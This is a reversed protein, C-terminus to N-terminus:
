DLMHGQKLLRILRQTYNRKFNAFSGLINELTVVGEETVENKEVFSSLEDIMWELGNIESINLIGQKEEIERKDKM